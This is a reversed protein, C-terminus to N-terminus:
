AIAPLPPPRDTAKAGRESLNNTWPVAFRRESEPVDTGISARMDPWEPDPIGRQTDARFRGTRGASWASRVVLPPQDFMNVRAQPGSPYVM